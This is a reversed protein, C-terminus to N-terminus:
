KKLSEELWKRIEEEPRLGIFGSLPKGRDFLIMLPVANIEYKQATAPVTNVNVKTFIIKDSFEAALKDLIPALRFCPGCGEMWFDVLVPKEATSIERDFNEDTLVFPMFIHKNGSIEKVAPM